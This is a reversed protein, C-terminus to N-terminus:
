ESDAHGQADAAGVSLRRFDAWLDFVGLILVVGALVYQLTIVVYIAVRLWPPLGLRQLYFSVIAVGQCFYLGLVVALINGAMLSVDAQPAFVAFGAAILGWILWGPAQWEKLNSLQPWPAWRRALRLNLFWMAGTCLVVIAPLMSLTTQQLSDRQLELDALQEESMGLHRYIEIARAFGERWTHALSANLGVVESRFTWATAALGMLAVAVAVCVVSEVRWGRNLSWLTVVAPIGALALYLLAAKVDVVAAAIGSTSAAVAAVAAIGGLQSIALAPLPLLLLAAGAPTPGLLGLLGLAATLGAAGATARTVTM